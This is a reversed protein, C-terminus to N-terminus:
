KRSGVTWFSAIASFYLWMSMGVMAAFMTLMFEPEGMSQLPPLGSGTHVPFGSPWTLDVLGVASTFTRLAMAAAMSVLTTLSRTLLPLANGSEAGNAFPGYSGLIAPGFYSRASALRSTPTALAAPHFPLIRRSALAATGSQPMTMWVSSVAAPISTSSILLGMPSITVCTRVFM